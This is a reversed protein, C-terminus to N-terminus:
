IDPHPDYRHTTAPIHQLNAIAEKGFWGVCASLGSLTWHSVHLPVCRVTARSKPHMTSDRAGTERRHADNAKEM